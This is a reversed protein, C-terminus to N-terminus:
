MQYWQGRGKYRLISTTTKYNASIEKIGDKDYDLVNVKFARRWYFDRVKEYEHFFHPGKFATLSELDNNELSVVYLRAIGEFRTSRTMGEFFHLVLARVNKSINVFNIKYLSAQEGTAQLFTKFILQGRFNYIEFYDENDKKSYVLSEPLGDDNIDMQYLGSNVVVKRKNRDIKLNLDKLKGTYIDRFFREDQAFISVSFMLISFISFMRLM